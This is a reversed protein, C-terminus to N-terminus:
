LPRFDQISGMRVLEGMQAHKIEPPVFDVQEDLAAIFSEFTSNIQRINLRRLYMDRVDPDARPFVAYWPIGDDAKRVRYLESGIDMDGFSYGIILVCNATFRSISRELMKRYDAIMELYDFQTIILGGHGVAQNSQALNGHPKYLIANNGPRPQRDNYITDIVLGRRAYGLEVLEDYNTTFVSNPRLCPLALHPWLPLDCSFREVLFRSLPERGVKAEVIAAAHPLSMLGLQGPDFSGGRDVKFKEWIDNRLEFASPLTESRRNRAGFSAGAGLFVVLRGNFHDWNSVFNRFNQDDLITM